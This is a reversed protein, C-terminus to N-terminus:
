VAHVLHHGDGVAEDRQAGALDDPDAVATLDVGAFQDAQDRATVDFGAGAAGARSTATSRGDPEVVDGQAGAGAREGGGDTAALDDAESPELTVALVLQDSAQGPQVIRVGAVDVNRPRFSASVVVRRGDRGVPAADGPADDVHRAVALDFAHGVHQRDDVVVAHRRQFPVHERAHQTWAPGPGPELAVGAGDVEGWPALVGDSAQAAPVLLLHDDGAPQGRFGAHDEEIVGGAPDVQLGLVLQVVHEASQGVGARGDDHQGTFDVLQDVQHVADQHEM